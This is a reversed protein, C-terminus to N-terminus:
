RVKKQTRESFVVGCRWVDLDLDSGLTTANSLNPRDPKAVCKYLELEDVSSLPEHMEAIIIVISNRATRM